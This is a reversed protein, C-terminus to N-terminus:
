RVVLDTSTSITRKPRLWRARLRVQGATTARRLFFGEADTTLEPTEAGATATAPRTAVPAWRGPATQREIRVAHGGTGPRVQGFIVIDTGDRYAWFPM